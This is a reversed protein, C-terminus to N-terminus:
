SQAEKAARIEGLASQIDGPRLDDRRGELQESVAVLVKEAITLGKERPDCGPRCEPCLVETASSWWWWRTAVAQHVETGCDDCALITTTERATLYELERREALHLPTHGIWIEADLPRAARALAGLVDSLHPDEESIWRKKLTVDIEHRKMRKEPLARAAGRSGSELCAVEFSVVFM